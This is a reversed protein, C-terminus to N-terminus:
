KTVEPTTIIQKYEKMKCVHRAVAEMELISYGNVVDMCVWGHGTERFDRVVAIRDNGLYFVIANTYVEAFHNNDLEIM